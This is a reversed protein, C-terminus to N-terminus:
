IPLGLTLQFTAITLSTSTANSVNMQIIFVYLLICLPECEGVMRFVKRQRKRTFTTFKFTVCSLRITLGILIQTVKLRKM